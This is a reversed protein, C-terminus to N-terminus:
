DPYRMREIQFSRGYLRLYDGGRLVAAGPMRQRFRRSADTNGTPLSLIDDDYSIIHTAHGAIALEIFKSDRTDRSYEFTVDPNRIFDCVYRLRLLTRDIRPVNLVPYRRMIKADTLINRYEGLVPRSVLGLVQRREVLELLRGAASVTSILGRLIANTDLVLRHDLRPV